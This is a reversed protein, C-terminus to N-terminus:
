EAAEAPREEQQEQQQEAQEAKLRRAKAQELRSQFRNFFAPSASMLLYLGIDIALDQGRTIVPRPVMNWVAAFEDRYERGADILTQFSLKRPQEAVPLGDKRDSPPPSRAAM